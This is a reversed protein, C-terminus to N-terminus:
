ADYLGMHEVLVTSDPSRLARMYAPVIKDPEMLEHFEISQCMSRFAATYNQRHQPGPDLPERSGVSVRIIVKGPWGDPKKDLHNVLQNAALLLFDWRAYISIPVFGALALGFCYGMQVDEVVPMEVRQAMPVESLTQSMRQGDYRVSQGVFITRPDHALLRMARSLEGSYTLVEGM